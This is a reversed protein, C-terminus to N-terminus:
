NSQLLVDDIFPGVGSNGQCDVSAFGFAIRVTKGALASVDVQVPFWENLAAKPVAYDVKAASMTDAVQVALLDTGMGNEIGLYVMFSLILKKGPDAATLVFPLSTATGSVPTAPNPCTYNTGNNFNLSCNDSWYGPKAPTADVAWRTLSNNPVANISWNAAESCVMGDGYAPVAKNALSIADVFWGKGTNFNADVSNFRYRIRFKMGAMKSLDVWEFRWGLQGVANSLQGAALSTVFADASAEFFRQDFSNSNEVQAWSRYVISVKTGPVVATMDIVPSLAVGTVTSNPNSQYDVGDNFNLSADGELKGPPNATADIAWAVGGIPASFQWGFPNNSAFPETWATAADIKVVPGAYVNVDEIFWGAGANKVDDVSDFRFRVQFKQGAFASLDVTEIFWKGLNPKNELQVKAALTAFGDTSIEIWRQDTKGSLDETADTGNYSHFALTISGKVAAADYLFASTATGASLGAYDKGNNYNLSCAGTLKAPVAPTADFGWGTNNVKPSLTWAPEILLCDMLDYSPVPKSACLPNFKFICEGTTPECSDNTCVNYDNCVKAAGPQCKMSACKDGQTCANGDDCGLNNAAYQCGLAPECTDTSCVNGDDCNVVAGVCKGGTCTDKETCKSADDCPATNNVYVCGTAPDCSDNTCPNKDDCVAAVGVCKGAACTDGTTCANGDDCPLTNNAFLCGTAPDCSDTTCPNKDDCALPAGSKCSGDTCVDKATCANGDDCPASNYIYVCGFDPLCSDDTCGNKDDCIPAPGGVCKTDKCTDKTTCANKDDCPLNNAKFQCGLTPDCSDATCVNGDDCVPAPGPICKGAACTDKETCKSGDECPATNFPNFCGKVADCLDDTCPDNDGCNLTGTGKCVGQSCTDGTTCVTGDDCPKTNPPFYCGLGPDCKDETCPNNDNCEKGIGVCKGAQCSDNSNCNNGDDCATGDTVPAFVCGVAPDCSDKTCVNVDDCVLTKGGQCKKASCQEGVTCANGDDCPNSNALNVCGAEPVCGDSTCENKDDCDLLNGGVCKGDVCTDTLTCKSNDSCPSSNNTHVCGQAPDCTDDTCPNGDDCNLPSSGTCKGAVCSDVATCFNGDDCTLENAKNVCGVAPDCSDSTCPNDDDCDLSPGGICQGADCVDPGTCESGDSCAIDSQKHGCGAQPDCSDATCPNGDDCDLLDGGACKGKLCADSTTCFNEDDCPQTNFTTTCGVAPDCLDDTCPDGDNCGLKPGGLCQGQGCLDDVTCEDGDDCPVGDAPAHGCGTVPDCTDDTCPNDDDCKMEAGPVCLGGMCTDNESCLNGDDCAASNFEVVCGDAPDCTDDTCPNGDDCLVEDTGVCAGQVCHDGLTCQDGDDCQADESPDSTCLGTAPDCSDHTCPNGDDCVVPQGACGNETCVDEVTCADGDDCAAGPAPPHKCGAESDCTDLSCPDGDDCDLSETGVCEGDQCESATSCVDEDTCQTGNEVPVPACEGSDPQCTTTACEGDKSTDCKIVSVPDLVCSGDTCLLTGNCYNGDEFPACDLYSACACADGGTGECKGDKCTDGTTCGNGDDCEVGSVPEFNCGSQPDCSDKTCGNVDDCVTAKGSLCKGAACKDNVTCLDGDDCADGDSAVTMECTGTAPVCVNEVCPEKSLPCTVVTAPDVECFGDVCRLAGNCLNGDDKPLCDVDTACACLNEAGLCQGETCADGVTCANDDDCAATNFSTQCGLGKECSDDTCPNGDDCSVADGTCQGAKCVGGLTCPDMPDCGTGDPMNEVVCQATAKNCYLVECQGVGDPYYAACDDDTKCGPLVDPVTDIPVDVPGIDEDTAGDVPPVDVPPLETGQDASLDAPIDGGDVTISSDTSGGGCAAALVTIM